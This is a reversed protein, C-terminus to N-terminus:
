IAKRSRRTSAVVALVFLLAFSSPEPVALSFSTTTGVTIGAAVATAGNSISLGGDAERDLRFWGYNDDNNVFDPFAFFEFNRDDYYAFYQSEGVPLSLPNLPTIGLNSAFPTNGVVFEPGIADEPNALYLITAEAIGIYNFEFTDNGQNAIGFLFLGSTASGFSTTKALGVQYNGFGGGPLVQQARDIWDTQTNIKHM